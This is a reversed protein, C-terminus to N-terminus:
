FGYRFYAILTYGDIDDEYRDYSGEFGINFKDYLWYSLEGGFHWTDTDEGDAKRFRVFPTIATQETVTFEILAGLGWFFNDDELGILQSEAFEYGLTASLGPNVSGMRFYGVLTGSLDVASTDFDGEAYQIVTNLDLGMTSQEDSKVLAYNLEGGFGWMQLDVLLGADMSSRGFGLGLYNEGLIGRAQLLVATAALMLSSAIIITKQYNM